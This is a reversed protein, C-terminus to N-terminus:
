RRDIEGSIRKAIFEDVRVWFDVGTLVGRQWDNTFYTQYLVSTMVFRPNETLAALESPRDSRPPRLVILARLSACKDLTMACFGFSVFDTALHSLHPLGALAATWREKDPLDFLNLHTLNALAAHPFADPTRFIEAPECYLRRLAM